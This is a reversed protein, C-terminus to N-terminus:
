DGVAGHHGDSRSLAVVVSLTLTVMPVFLFRFCLPCHWHPWGFCCCYGLTDHHGDTRVVPTSASNYGGCSASVLTSLTLMVMSACRFLFRICCGVTDSHGDPPVAISDSVVLTLLTLMVM